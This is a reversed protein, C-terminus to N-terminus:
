KNIRKSPVQAKRLIDGVHSTLGFNGMVELGINQSKAEEVKIRFSELDNPDLTYQEYKQDKTGKVIVDKENHGVQGKHMQIIWVEKGDYVWELKVPGLIAEINQYLEKLKTTVESPLQEAQQAGLMFNDGRGKVGEIHLSNNANFLAGSYIFPVEDQVLVSSVKEKDSEDMMAFVDSYGRTTPFKGPSQEAPATRTWRVPSNTPTGFNFFVHKGVVQTHPVKFGLTDALLLGFTKDGIYRSFRNPWTWSPKTNTEGVDELEWVIIHDQLHGYKKPMVSFEVRLNTPYDLNLKFGYVKELLKIGINRPLSAPIGHKVVEKAEVCRPTALMAFEILNGLLVGSTRGPDPIEEHVIIYLGQNTLRKANELADDVTKFARLLPWGKPNYPDYSRITIGNEQVKSLLVKLAERPSEFTHNQEFGAIHSYRQELQPSFSVFQATNAKKSLENLVEDKFHGAM